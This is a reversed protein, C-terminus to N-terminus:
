VREYLKWDVFREETEEIKFAELMKTLKDAVSSGSACGSVDFTVSRKMM